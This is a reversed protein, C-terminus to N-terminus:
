NEWSAATENLQNWSVVLMILVQKIVLSDLGLSHVGNLSALIPFSCLFLNSWLKSNHGEGNPPDCNGM